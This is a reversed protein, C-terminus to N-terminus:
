HVIRAASPHEHVIAVDAVLDALSALAAVVLWVLAEGASCPAIALLSDRALTKECDM